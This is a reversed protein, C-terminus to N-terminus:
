NTVFRARLLFHHYAQLRSEIKLNPTVIPAELAEGGDEDPHFSPASYLGPGTSIWHQSLNLQSAAFLVSMTWQQSLIETKPNRLTLASDRVVQTSVSYKILIANSTPQTGRIGNAAEAPSFEAM